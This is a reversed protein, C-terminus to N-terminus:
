LSLIEREAPAIAETSILNVLALKNLLLEALSAISQEGLFQSLTVQIQLDTALQNKLMIATLSDLLVALYQERDLKERPVQLLSSLSDLLYIELMQQQIKPNSALLKARSFNNTTASSNSINAPQVIEDQFTVSIPPAPMKGLAVDGWRMVTAAATAAAGKTYVLVLDNEQIKGAQVAHYLNAVPLVPGINAYRPYLNITREPAIGLARTCVSAYWATPTNFAFFDIQALSVGAKAVAAECCQRVFDVATQALMSANEGTRTRIQPQGQADTVLEHLYAGCTQATHVIKSGLIGQHPKLLGVVFAGAGDGMSWSLSDEAEVTRSGFHSVVVLINRYGGVQVLAQANELAVLASSCTSELNWAPCQLELQHALYTAHGTGIHEGFLSAVILLDIEDDSLKASAIAERAAACELTLSSEGEGLVRREVSGRFSDSLYPAVEQSWIDVGYNDLRTNRRKREFLHPFRDLWYDNTRIIQPFSVALSCVGVSCNTM